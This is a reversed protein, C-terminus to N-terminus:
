IFTIIVLLSMQWRKNEEMTRFANKKFIDINVFDFLVFDLTNKLKKTFM